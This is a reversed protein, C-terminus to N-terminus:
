VVELYRVAVSHYPPLLIGQLRIARSYEQEHAVGITRPYELLQLRELRGDHM